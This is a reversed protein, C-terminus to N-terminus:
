PNGFPNREDFDLIKDAEVEIELNQSYGDRLNIKDQPDSINDTNIIELVYRAGSKQGILTEGKVFSGSSNSIELIRTVANWSKVYASTSSASGIIPENPIYTGIGTIVPSGIVITPNSFYNLGSDLLRISTVSGNSIQAVARAESTAGGVFSVNPPTTYGSGGSTVTIIGVIGNGLTAYAEAGAGGGGSFAIKPAITYGAGPNTILVGQVRLLEEDTECFDVIGGIMTAIGSARVGGSPATSFAVNPSSKYGSGRNTVTVFRVGGNVTSTIASATSGVGVM